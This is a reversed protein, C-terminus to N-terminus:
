SLLISLNLCLFRGKILKRKAELIMKRSEIREESTCISGQFVINIDMKLSEVLTDGLGMARLVDQHFHDDLSENESPSHIAVAMVKSAQACVM